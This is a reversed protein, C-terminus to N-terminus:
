TNRNNRGMDYIDGKRIGEEFKDMDRSIDTIRKIAERKIRLDRLNRDISTDTM